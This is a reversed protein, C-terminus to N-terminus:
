RVVSRAGHPVQREGPDVLDARFHRPRRETHGRARRVLANEDMHTTTIALTLHIANRM